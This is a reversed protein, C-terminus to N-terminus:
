INYVQASCSCSRGASWGGALRPGGMSGQCLQLGCRIPGALWCRCRGVYSKEACRSAAAASLLALVAVQLAALVQLSPVM